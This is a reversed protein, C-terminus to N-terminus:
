IKMAKLKRCLNEKGTKHGMIFKGRRSTACYHTFGFFNFSAVKGKGDRARRWASRGFRIIQTKEKSVELGFKGLRQTQLELFDKADEERECCVVYDDYVM